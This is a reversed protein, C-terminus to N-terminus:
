EQGTIELWDRVRVLVERLSIKPNWGLLMNIRSIDPIRRQMDEFGSPYADAYPVLRIESKSKATDRIMKALELISIEETNGINFLKGPADPHMALGAIAGVVDQVDCFCRSQSGDGYVTLPENRIAQSMLRPIVMGYHGTQRPGVTNFLRFPVVPLGYEQFYALGLFEDIMKSAAYAWRSKDTPGLLVDDAENFPFRTGKGYVESTSALLVRCGYRLATHLVVESGMVNTEITHVPRDVILKVGVAAALHVVIQCQSMIRDLVPENLIDARAFHFRPHHNLHQLNQLRGTSLNDIVFVTHGQELFLDALHSGIFGAGGTILINRDSM